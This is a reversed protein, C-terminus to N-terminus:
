LLVTRENHFTSTAIPCIGREVSRIELQIYILCLPGYVYVLSMCVSLCVTYTFNKKFFLVLHILFCLLVLLFASLCVCRLLVLATALLTGSSSNNTVIMRVLLTHAKYVLDLLVM